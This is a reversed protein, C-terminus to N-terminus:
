GEMMLAMNPGYTNFIRIIKIILDHERKYNMFLSEVCRKGEDYCSRLGLPNVNGNYKEHQPHVEPDGYM